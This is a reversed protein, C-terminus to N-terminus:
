ETRYRLLQEALEKQNASLTKLALGNRPLNDPLYHWDFRKNDEFDFFAEGKQGETLSSLFKSPVEIMVEANHTKSKWAALVILLLVVLGLTASCFSAFGITAHNKM